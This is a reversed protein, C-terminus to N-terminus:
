NHLPNPGGPVIIRSVKHIPGVGGNTFGVFGPFAGLQRPLSSSFLNSTRRETEGSVAPGIHRCNALHSTAILIVFIHVLLPSTRTRM